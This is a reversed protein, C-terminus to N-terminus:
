LGEACSVMAAALDAVSGYGKEQAWTRVRDAINAETYPRARRYTDTGPMVAVIMERNGTDLAVADAYTKPQTTRRLLKMNLAVSGEGIRKANGTDGIIAPVITAPSTAPNVALVLDGKKAGFVSLPNVSPGRLVIAPVHRLDLQNRVQCEGWESSPLGNKTATLSGFYGRHEGTKFICPRGAPDPAIVSQWSIRYGQPVTWTPSARWRDFVAEKQANTLSGSGTRSITIGHVIKNIALREGNFDEPHYSTPAGDTNVALRAKFVAISSAAGLGEKRALRVHENDGPFVREDQVECGASAAGAAPIMLLAAAAAARAGM